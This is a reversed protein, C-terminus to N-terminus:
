DPPEDIIVPFRKNIGKMSIYKDTTIVDDKNIIFNDYILQTEIFKDCEYNKDFILSMYVYKIKDLNKELCDNYLQAGGIIFGNEISDTRNLHNIADQLDRVVIINDGNDLEKKMKKYENSTIIINVRNKLPKNPLSHWTNKGMIICNCKKDNEVTTTIKRFLKLEEPIHWPLSNKYGIGGNTTAAVIIGVDKM